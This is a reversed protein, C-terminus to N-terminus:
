HAIRLLSLYLRYPNVVIIVKSVSPIGNVFVTLLAPGTPFDNVPASLFTTASFRAAPDPRLWRVQGNDLRRLQVLPYNTASNQSSGSSAESFGYGRFGIGSLQLRSGLVLPSSATTLTPRWAPQFGLGPDYVEASALVVSDSNKGGVVLMRGDLLLTMTFRDRAYAMSGTAKWIGTAPDYVEASALYDGNEGYGGAVLVRGDPLLAAKLLTRHETMSGTFSWAGTRPDYVEASAYYGCGRSVCEGGTVLVRGDRLLRATHFIRNGALSGTASWADTAPNYIEATSVDDFSYDGGAVLVRGDQLLTATNSARGIIM